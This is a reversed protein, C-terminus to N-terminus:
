LKWQHCYYHHNIYYYNHCFIIVNVIEALIVYSIFRSHWFCHHIHPWSTALQMNWTGKWGDGVNKANWCVLVWCDDHNDIRHRDPSFWQSAPWSHWSSWWIMARGVTKWLWWTIIINIVIIFTTLFFTIIHHCGNFVIINIIIIIIITSFCSIVNTANWRWQNWRLKASFLWDNITRRVGSQQTRLICFYLSLFDYLYMYITCIFYLLIRYSITRELGSQQDEFYKGRCFNQTWDIM